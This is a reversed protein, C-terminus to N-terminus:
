KRTFSIAVILIILILGLIGLIIWSNNKPPQYEFFPKYAPTAGNLWQQYLLDEQKQVSLFNFLGGVTGAIASVPDTGMDIPKQPFLFQLLGLTLLISLLAILGLVLWNSSAQSKNYANSQIDWSQFQASDRVTFGCNLLGYNNYLVEGGVFRCLYDQNDLPRNNSNCQDVCGDFLNPNLAKLPGCKCACARIDKCGRRGLFCNSGCSITKAM